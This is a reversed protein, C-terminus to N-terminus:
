GNFVLVLAESASRQCSFHSCGQRDKLWSSPITVMGRASALKYIFASFLLVPVFAFGLSEIM